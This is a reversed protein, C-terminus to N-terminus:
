INAIAKEVVKVRSEGFYHNLQELLASEVHINRNAPLRKMVKEKACYIIVSDNGESFKLMEFLNAEEATYSAIDPFQIWVECNVQEFPIISECILKSANDDEESVRGKVFVKSDENLYARNKEYDKPFVVVEVTGLLDEITLFAMPKGTKTHKITKATIMGGIIKKAGERVKTRGTEEDIQFDGTTATISKRWKEEYEQMPHGSIYIGLVEKEFALLTEKEYEGVNPLPIEFEKKQDDSVMDFLTMQGTMSYKKEQNVQDLIKIYIMMFQKRAGHLSDLAGAKIFSEITRKNVEKGSLREIFDKLHKFPGNQGREAVIADIVPRGISKIAALGYRINGGDVSFRGEGVNIDPPLIEIGMQRCTYIYEAVKGPNDIVSTMLAAMFEVPHYYKLYATQYAVVAYAAAHSKNFAYKAFDLMEDYIKNAVQESIGNAICGPVGEEPNGYVFNQRERQMVDGKKKSMARRVLDSRGLTYGALDRVIQMVQEQYVICGYTPALIPELQPCDYTISAPDNKGRIYQPIFDMPGPRYLSIGAIIDELSQPKLEKMFSKMGASELQFVGDTKGTGISDLVAKDDYNIHDIDIKKGTNKEVLQVANQIVTLTRLGLFDMKLLGLEELTTMTFQTTVSGDSGLSLPVYEDVSKQSIVVGAAHMSSHRPLGELRKSMDILTKVQEDSEYLSKLESNMDLAKDLTINLEQPIMKAISDVFAYPLDMVRGVDRIVGKAQLTGFTVIQVVRDAGYKRVVYDIVEQRREFCFDIDIDPMSVREPNLFREFLLQYKIPDINTIGLCYSVISGAASGRGPGVMIDNDRAYKIFDWVILFYDVYGMKQIVGLEYTLRDKLEQKPEETATGYHKQLGEFCLKNLYEWSTYGDPVDYKPLKTVGFEIEVYCRDAIKQTNEIAQLAYPFLAKMEEESKVYYQGGEYRMRNEDDLKKGTQICLLIDHPKEDEAYTYHVDNTAVLEIGTEESLRLLQQNVMTQEQMGHDQLELFFNGKGFIDEYRKAAAFAEQYMARQLNKQVEGALCASLAIIGEHYEELLEMDVRPKYYYGEVFAKSVIKTLNEYGKQNEALLVLHYYRDDTTGPTKEFRSGPAVYVECGLIPKIGAAKAARYFDIVGYMVGHDTIAASNMGLEKVRSVYEKIKNSGDLLSYETHVHLHAFSM